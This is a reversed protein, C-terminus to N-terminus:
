RRLSLGARITRPADYSYVGDATEGTQVAADTVNDAALYLEAWSRVRWRAQLGLTTAAGLRRTNIDDEFRASEYRLAARLTLPPLPRWVAEATLTLRPAQAPQKGTLQPASARGDVKAM